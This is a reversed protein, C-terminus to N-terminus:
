GFKQIWWFSVPNFIRCSVTIRCPSSPNAPMRL